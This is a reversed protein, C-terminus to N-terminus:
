RRPPDGKLSIQALANQVAMTSVGLVGAIIANTANPDIRPGAAVCLIFFGVLLLLQLLLPRLSALGKSELGGALVRTLGFM